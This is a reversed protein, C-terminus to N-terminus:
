ATFTLMIYYTANAKSLLPSFTVFHPKLSIMLTWNKVIFCAGVYCTYGFVNILKAKRKHSHKHQGDWNEIFTKM